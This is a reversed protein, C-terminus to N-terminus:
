KNRDFLQTPLQVVVNLEHVVSQLPQIFLSVSTACVLLVNVLKM